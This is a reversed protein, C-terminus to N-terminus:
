EASIEADDMTLPEDAKFSGKHSDKRGLVGDYGTGTVTFPVFVQDSEYMADIYDQYKDAVVSRKLKLTATLENTQVSFDIPLITFKQIKAANSPTCDGNNGTDKLAKTIDAILQKNECADSITKGYGMAVPELKDSGGM